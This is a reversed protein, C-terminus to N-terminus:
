TLQQLRRKSKNQLNWHVLPYQGGIRIVEQYATKIEKEYLIKMNPDLDKSQILKQLIQGKIYYSKILEPYTDGFIYSWSSIAEDQYTLATAWDERNKSVYLLCSLWVYSLTVNYSKPGYAKIYISLSREAYGKATLYDVGLDDSFRELDSSLGLTALNQYLGGIHPSSHDLYKMYIDLAQMYYGLAESPDNVGLLYYGIGRYSCALQLNSDKSGTQNDKCINIAKEYTQLAESSATTPDHELVTGFTNYIKALHWDTPQYVGQGIKVATELYKKAATYDNLFGKIRGLSQYAESSIGQNTSSDTAVVLAEQLYQLGQSYQSFECALQGLILLLRLRETVFEDALSPDLTVESIIHQNLALFHPEVKQCSKLQEMSYEDYWYRKLIVDVLKKIREAASVTSKRLVVQSTRHIYCSQTVKDYTLLSYNDRGIMLAMIQEKTDKGDSTEYLGTLLDLPINENALYGCYQLIDIWLPNSVKVKEILLRLAMELTTTRKMDHTIQGIFTAGGVMQVLREHADRKLIQTYRQFTIDPNIQLYGGTIRIGLPSYDLEKALTRASVEDEELRTSLEKLLEVAEKEDLGQNLSFNSETDTTVFHSQQTTILILGKVLPDNPLYKAIDGYSGANDFIVIWEAYENIKGWLVANLRQHMQDWTESEYLRRYELGFNYLLERYAQKYSTESADNNSSDPNPELRWQFTQTSTLVLEWAYAKALESKGCGPVGTIALLTVSQNRDTLFKIRAKLDKLRKDKFHSVKSLLNNNQVRGRPIKEENPIKNKTSSASIRIIVNTRDLMPKARIPRNAGIAPISTLLQKYLEEEQSSFSSDNRGLRGILDALEPSLKADESVEIILQSQSIIPEYAYHSRIGTSELLRPMDLKQDSNM